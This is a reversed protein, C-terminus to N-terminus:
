RRHHTERQILHHARETTDKSQVEVHLSSIRLLARLPGSRVTVPTSDSAACQAAARGVSGSTTSSGSVNGAVVEPLM